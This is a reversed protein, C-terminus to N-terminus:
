QGPGGAADCNETDQKRRESQKSGMRKMEALLWASALGPCLAAYDGQHLRAPLASRSCAPEDGRRACREALIRAPSCAIVWSPNPAVRSARLDVASRGDNGCAHKRPQPVPHGADGATPGALLSWGSSLPKRYTRRRCATRRQLGRGSSGAMAGAAMAGTSQGHRGSQAPRASLSVCGAGRAAPPDASASGVPRCLPERATAQEANVM